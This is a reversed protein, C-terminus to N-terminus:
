WSQMGAEFVVVVVQNALLLTAYALAPVLLSRTRDYTYAAVGLTLLQTAAFLGGAVSDVGAVGSGVVLAAFAVVPTAALWRLWSRDTRADAALALCLLLVLVVFGALKGRDPITALGGTTDVMVFGTVLTTLAVAADGDVIRAVSGQVLVQCIAVLAPVGVLLSLGAVVAVPWLPPDAAVATKTLANYPVGTAIGVLKTLSVLVLPALGALVIDPLDATTPLTLGPDINRLTAYAGVILVTGLLLLGGNVLSGVVVGGVPPSGVLSRVTTLLHRWLYLGFLVGTVLGFEVALPRAWDTAPRADSQLSM